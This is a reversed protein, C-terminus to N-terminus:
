LEHTLLRRGDPTHPAYGGEGFVIHSGLTYALAQVARASDAAERDTHVRVKSFDHGFRPELYRRAPADLMQGPSSTVKQVVAHLPTALAAQAVRRRPAASAEADTTPPASAAEPLASAPGSPAPQGDDLKPQSVCPSPPAFLPPGAQRGNPRYPPFIPIKSFDWSPGRLTERATKNEPASDQYHDGHLENGTLSSARQALLRLTAQNGISRQLMHAQAVASGGFPRAAFTSRQPALQITSSAGAKTQAKALRLAFMGYGGSRHLYFSSFRTPCRNYRLM